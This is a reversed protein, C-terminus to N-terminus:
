KLYGSSEIIRLLAWLQLVDQLAIGHQCELQLTQPLRGAVSCTPVCEWATTLHGIIMAPM